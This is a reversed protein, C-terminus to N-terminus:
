SPLTGATDALSEIAVNILSVAIDACERHVLIFESEDRDLEDSITKSVAKALELTTLARAVTLNM